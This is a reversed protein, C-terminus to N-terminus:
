RPRTLRRLERLLAAPQALEAVDVEGGLVLEVAARLRDLPVWLDRARLQGAVIAYPDDSAVWWPVRRSRPPEDRAADLAAGILTQAM